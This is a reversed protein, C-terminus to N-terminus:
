PVSTLPVGGVRHVQGEDAAVRGLDALPEGILDDLHVAVLVVGAAPTARAEAVRAARRQGAPVDDTVRAVPVRIVAPVEAAEM